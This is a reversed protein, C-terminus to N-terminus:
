GVSHTTAYCNLLSTHGEGNDCMCYCPQQAFIEPHQQAYSYAKSVVPDSFQKPDLVTLLPQAAEVSTFHAPVRPTPNATAQHSQQNAHSDHGGPSAGCGALLVVSALVLCLGFLVHRSQQIQDTLSRNM